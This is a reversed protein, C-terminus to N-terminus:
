IHRKMDMRNHLVRIIHITRANKQIYFISHSAYEYRFYGRRIMDIARGLMPNKALNLFTDELSFLYKDAKSEGFQEYSFRYIEIIDDEAKGSLVYDAM